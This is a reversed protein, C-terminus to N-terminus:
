VPLPIAIVATIWGHIHEWHLRYAHPLHVMSRAFMQGVVLGNIFVFVLLLVIKPVPVLM